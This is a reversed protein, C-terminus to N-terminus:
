LGMVYAVAYLVAAAGLVGGAVFALGYGVVRGISVGPM